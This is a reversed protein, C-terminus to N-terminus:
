WKPPPPRDNGSDFMEAALKIYKDRNPHPIGTQNEALQIDAITHLLTIREIIFKSPNTIKMLRDMEIAHKRTYFQKM